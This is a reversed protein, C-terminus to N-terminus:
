WGSRPHEDLEEALQEVLERARASLKKPAMIKVVALLDGRQEPRGDGAGRQRLRLKTGSSTGAPVKLLAPGDPTPIEVQTGLTAEAITLPLDLLVDSGERRFNPHPRVRCRIYLDGRGGPGPEGRGRLRIRQGDAVGAPIKVEIRDRTAGPEAGGILLERTGGRLAELFDLEVAAELDAGPPAPPRAATRTRRGGGRGRAFFQEFISGLDNFGGFDFPVEEVSVHPGGSAWRQYEPAPGGEGFRDYQERRKPDGVVEYAARVEKFQQGASKNGPNRDPHYQKALRRYARKIEDASATRSVGLIQYPDKKAM